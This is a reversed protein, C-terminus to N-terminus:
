LRSGRQAKTGPRPHVKGTGKGKGFHFTLIWWQCNLATCPLISALKLYQYAYKLIWKNPWCKNSDEMLIDLLHLSFSLEIFHLISIFHAESELFLYSFALSDIYFYNSEFCIGLIIVTVRPVSDSVNNSISEVPHIRNTHMPNNGLFSTKSVEM